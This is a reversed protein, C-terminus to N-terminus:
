RLVKNAIIVCEQLLSCMKSALRPCSSQISSDMVFWRWSGEHSRNHSLWFYPLTFLSEPWKSIMTHTESGEFRRLPPFIRQKPTYRGRLIDAAPAALYMRRSQPTTLHQKKETKPRGARTLSEASATQQRWSHARSPIASVCIRHDQSINISSHESRHSTKQMVKERECVRACLGWMLRLNLSFLRVYVCQFM